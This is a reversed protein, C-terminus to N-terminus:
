ETVTIKVPQAEMPGDETVLADKVTSFDRPVPSLYSLLLSYTGPKGFCDIARVEVTQGVLSGQFCRFYNAPNSLSGPSPVDTPPFIPPNTTKGTSDKVAIRLGRYSWGLPVFIKPGFKTSELLASMKFSQSLRINLPVVELRCTIASVSGDGDARATSLFADSALLPGSFSTLLFDRRRM